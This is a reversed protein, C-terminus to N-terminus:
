SEELNAKNERKEQYLDPKYKDCIEKRPKDDGHFNCAGFYWYDCNFCHRATM